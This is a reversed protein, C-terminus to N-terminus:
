NILLYADVLTCVTVALPVYLQPPPSLITAKEYEISWKALGDSVSLTAKFSKYLQLLDGDLITFTIIKAADDIAETLVKATTPIAGTM